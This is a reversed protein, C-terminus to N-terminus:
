WSQEYDEGLFRDFMDTFQKEELIGGVHILCIVGYRDIAVTVPYGGTSFKQIISGRLFIKPFNLEVANGSADKAVYSTVQSLSNASYDNIALVEIKDSYKDYASALYPFEMECFKCGVYWFNLVLLEKEGLIESFTHTNGDIDTLTMDVIVDGLYFKQVSSIDGEYPATMIEIENEGVSLPYRDEAAYGLPLESIELSYSGLPVSFKVEGRYDTEGRQVMGVGENWLFVMAGEIPMGGVTRLSAKYVAGDDYEAGCDTKDCIGDDDADVHTCAPTDGDSAGGNENGGGNGNGEDAGDSGGGDSQDGGPEQVGADDGDSGDGTDCAVLYLSVALATMLVLLLSFLKKM